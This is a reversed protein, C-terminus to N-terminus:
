FFDYEEPMALLGAPSQPLEIALSEIACKLQRFNELVFEALWFNDERGVRPVLDLIIV